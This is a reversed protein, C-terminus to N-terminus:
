PWYADSTYDSPIPDMAQITSSAVMVERRYANIAACLARATAVDPFTIEDGRTTNFTVPLYAPTETAADIISNVRVVAQDDCRVMVGGIPKGETMRREAEERVGAARQEAIAAAAAQELATESPVPVSGRWGAALAAYSSQDPGFDQDDLGLHSLASLIEPANM